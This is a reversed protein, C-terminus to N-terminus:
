ILTLIFPIGARRERETFIVEVSTYNSKVLWLFMPEGNLPSNIILKAYDIGEPVVVVRGITNVEPPPFAWDRVPYLPASTVTASILPVPM